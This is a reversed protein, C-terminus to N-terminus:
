RDNHAADVKDFKPAAVAVASAALIAVHLLLAARLRACPPTPERLDVSPLHSIIPSCRWLIAFRIMCDSTTPADMTLRAAMEAGTKM